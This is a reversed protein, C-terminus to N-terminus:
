GPERGYGGRRTQARQHIEDAIRSPTCRHECGNAGCECVFGPSDLHWIMPRWCIPCISALAVDGDRHDAILDAAELSALLEAITPPSM